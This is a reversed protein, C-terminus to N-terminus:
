EIEWKLDKQTLDRCIYTMEMDNSFAFLKAFDCEEFNLHEKKYLTEVVSCYYKDPLSVNNTKLIQKADDNYYSTRYVIQSNYWIELSVKNPTCM